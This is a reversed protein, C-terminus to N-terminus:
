TIPPLLREDQWRGIWQRLRDASDMCATFGAQRLRITSTLVSRDCNGLMFDALAGSEGLFAMVDASAALDHRRVLDRWLSARAGIYARLSIPEYGGPALGLADALRPWLDPWAYVDGNAINFIRDRAAEATAAWDIARGLLEVDVMEMTGRNDRSGPFPLDLGEARRLSAFVGIALFGNLNSGPGGGAITPCRFVTWRLRDTARARVHDEQRFYFDDIPPRPLSERLPVELHWGPVHPGYAKTGHIMTVQELGPAHDLMADLLNEFMSGNREAHKPDSWSAVLDGPTENVAAYVLHTAGSLQSAMSRCSSADRLDVQLFSVGDIATHPRTRSLGIVDWGSGALQRAAAHGVFGSAGAVVIQRATSTTM